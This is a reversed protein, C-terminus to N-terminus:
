VMTVGVTREGVAAAPTVVDCVNTDNASGDFATGLTTGSDVLPLTLVDMRESNGWTTSSWDSSGGRSGSAASNTSSVLEGWGCTNSCWLADMPM